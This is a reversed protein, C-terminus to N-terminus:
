LTQVAKQAFRQTPKEKTHHISNAFDFPSIAKKKVKFQEEDLKVVPDGMGELM